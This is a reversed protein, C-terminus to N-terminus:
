DRGCAEGPALKALRFPLLKGTILELSWALCDPCEAAFLDSNVHHKGCVGCQRIRYRM